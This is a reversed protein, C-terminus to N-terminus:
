KKPYLFVEYSPAAKGPFPHTVCVATVAQGNGARKGRGIVVVFRGPGDGGRDYYDSSSFSVDKAGSKAAEEKCRAKINNEFDKWADPSSALTALPVLLASLVGLVTVVRQIRHIVDM